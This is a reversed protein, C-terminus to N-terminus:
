FNDEICLVDKWPPSHPPFVQYVKSFISYCSKARKDVKASSLNKDNQQRVAAAAATQATTTDLGGLFYGLWGGLATFAIQIKAWILEISFDKM